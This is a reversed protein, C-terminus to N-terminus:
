FRAALGAVLGGHPSMGVIPLVQVGASAAQKREVAKRHTGEYFGIGGVLPAVALIMSVVAPVGITFTQSL